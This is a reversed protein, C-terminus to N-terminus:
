CTKILVSNVPLYKKGVWLISTQQSWQGLFDLVLAIYKAIWHRAFPLLLIIGLLGIVTRQVRCYPCIYVMGALESAWALACIVIAAIAVLQSNKSYVQLDFLKM